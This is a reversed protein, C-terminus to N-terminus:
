SMKVTRAKTAEGPQLLTGKGDAWATHTLVAEGRTSVTVDTPTSALRKVTTPTRAATPRTTGTVYVTGASRTLGTETALGRALVTARTTRADPHAVAGATIRKM